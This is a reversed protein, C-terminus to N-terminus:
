KLRRRCKGRCVKSINKNAQEQLTKIKIDSLCKGEWEIELKKKYKSGM